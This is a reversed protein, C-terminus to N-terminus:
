VVNVNLAVDPLSGVLDVAIGTMTISPVDDGDSASACASPVPRTANGVGSSREGAKYRPPGAPATRIRASMAPVPVLVNRIVEALCDQDVPSTSTCYMRPVAFSTVLWTSAPVNVM